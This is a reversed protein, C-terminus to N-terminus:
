GDQDLLPTPRTFADPAVTLPLDVNDTVIASTGPMNSKRPAVRVTDGGEVVFAQYDEWRWKTIPRDTQGQLIYGWMDLMGSERDVWFWFQDGPTLGVDDYTTKIVAHEATSSDPEYSRSVGPDLLKVPALLWYTDNIYARYARSLYESLTDAAVAQGDVYASGEQTNVNFLVVERGGEVDREVRYDGTFRDWLHSRFVTRTSDAARGFDFRIYRVRSWADPGGVANFVDMALSDARTELPPLDMTVGSPTETSPSACAALILSLPLILLFRPTSRM